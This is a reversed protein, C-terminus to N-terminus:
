EQWDPDILIRFRKKVSNYCLDSYAALFEIGEANKWKTQDHANHPMHTGTWHIGLKSALFVYDFEKLANNARCRCANSGHKLTQYSKSLIRNCRLCRWRVPTKSSSPVPQQVFELEKSQALDVYERIGYSPRGAM